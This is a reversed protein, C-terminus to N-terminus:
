QTKCDVSFFSNEEVILKKQLGHSRNSVILATNQM